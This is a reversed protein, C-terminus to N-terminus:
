RTLFSHLMAVIVLTRRTALGLRLRRRNLAKRFLFPLNTFAERARLLRAVGLRLCLVARRTTRLCLRLLGTSMSNLAKFGLFLLFVNAFLFYRLVRARAALGRRRRV